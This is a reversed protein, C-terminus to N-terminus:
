PGPPSPPAASSAPREVDRFLSATRARGLAFYAIAGLAVIPTVFFAIAIWILRQVGSLDDRVLIHIIAAVVLGFNAIAVMFILFILAAEPMGLAFGFVYGGVFLAFVLLIAVAIGIAVGPRTM